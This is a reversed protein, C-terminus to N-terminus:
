VNKPDPIEFGPRDPDKLLENAEAAFPGTHRETKPDFTLWPGVTYNADKEKIGVGKGMVDHLRM